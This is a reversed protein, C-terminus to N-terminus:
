SIGYRSRREFLVAQLLLTALCSVALALGVGLPGFRSIMPIGVALILVLRTVAALLMARGEQLTALAAELPYNLVQLYMGLCLTAVVAGLGAYKGFYVLEVLQGGVTGIMLFLLGFAAVEIAVGHYANRKLAEIGEEAYINSLLSRALNQVTLMLPSLIMVITMAATFQGVVEVGHIWQILWVPSAEGVMWALSVFLLWYGFRFNKRWDAMVQRRKMPFQRRHRLIWVMAWSCPLAMALLATVASLQGIGAVAALLMLQGLVIPVDVLLLSKWKLHAIFVRRMHERLLMLITFPVLATMAAFWRASSIDKMPMLGLVVFLASLGVAVTVLHALVSGSFLRLRQPSLRPALSTYPTWVLANPIGAAPWFLRLALSYLGLERAECVVGLIVYGLFSALSVVAQDFLIWTSPARAIHRCYHALRGTWPGTIPRAVPPKRDIASYGLGTEASTTNSQSEVM